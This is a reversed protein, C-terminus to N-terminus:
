DTEPLNGIWLPDASLAPIIMKTSVASGRARMRKAQDQMQQVMQSRSFSSGDASFDYSGVVAAAKEEWVDAAALFVDWAGAWDTEDPAVGEDDYLPYRELITTLSADSYTTTTPEASLRRLRAILDSSPSAM